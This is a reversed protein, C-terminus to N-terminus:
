EDIDNRGIGPPHILIGKDVTEVMCEDGKEMGHYEAGQETLNIYFSADSNGDQQVTRSEPKRRPPSITRHEKDEKPRRVEGKSSGM